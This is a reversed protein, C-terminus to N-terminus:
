PTSALDLNSTRRAVLVKYYFYGVGAGTPTKWISTIGNSPFNPTVPTSINRAYVNVAADVTLTKKGMFPTNIAVDTFEGVFLATSGAYWLIPFRWRGTGIVLGDLRINVYETSYKTTDGGAVFYFNENYYDEYVNADNTAAVIRLYSLSDAEFSFGQYWLTNAVSLSSTTLYGSEPNDSLYLPSVGNYFGTIVPIRTYGGVKFEGSPVNKLYIDSTDFTTIDSSNKTRIVTPEIRIREVM